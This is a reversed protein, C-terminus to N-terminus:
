GARRRLGREAVDRPIAKGNQPCFPVIHWVFEAFGDRNFDHRTASNPLGQAEVAAATALMLACITSATWRSISM